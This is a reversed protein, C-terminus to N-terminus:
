HVAAPPTPGDLLLRLVAPSDTCIADAGLAILRQLEEPREENWLTVSLGHGRLASVKPVTLSHPYSDRGRWCPNVGDCRFRAALNAMFEANLVSGIMLSTRLGPVRAKLADLAAGLFSGVTLGDVPATALLAALPEVARRNTVELLGAMGTRRCWDLHDVLTITDPAARLIEALPM